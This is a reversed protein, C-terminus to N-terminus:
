SAKGPKRASISLTETAKLVRVLEDRLEKQAAAEDGMAQPSYFRDIDTQSLRSYGLSVAMESLLEIRL